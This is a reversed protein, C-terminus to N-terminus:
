FSPALGVIGFVRGGEVVNFDSFFGELLFAHEGASWALTPLAGRGTDGCSTEQFTNARPDFREMCNRPLLPRPFVLGGDESGGIVLAGGDGLPVMVHHARPAALEGVERWKNNEYVFARQLAPVVQENPVGVDVGGTVLVRGDGLGVMGGFALPIPLEAAQFVEGAASIRACGALPAYPVTANPADAGGCVLAGDVGLSAAMTGITGTGPLDGSAVVQRRSPDYLDFTAADGFVQGWGGVILVKGGELPVMMHETRGVSLGKAKEWVWEQSTPDFLGMWRSYASPNYESQSARGGAVLIRWVGDEDLVPAAAFAVRGPGGELAPLKADLTDFEWDGEDVPAMRLIRTTSTNSLALPDTCGGFLFVEGTGPVQAAAGLMTRRSEAIRGLTALEDVIPVLVDLQLPPQDVGLGDVLGVAGWAVLRGPDLSADEAGGEELTLGIISGPALPPQEGLEFSGTAPGLVQFVPEAGPEQTMLKVMPEGLFPDQGDLAQPVLTLQYNSAVPTEGCAVTLLAGLLAGFTRIPDFKM